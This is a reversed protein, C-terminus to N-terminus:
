RGAPPSAVTQEPLVRDLVQRVKATLDEPTFPKELFTVSSALVGRRIVDDETYGSVYLVGLAPRLARLRRAVEVGSMEPMVVDTVVLHIPGTHTEALALAERASGATLVQYGAIELVTRILERVGEEDEIVLITESGTLMAPASVHGVPEEAPQEVRPLHVTFTTGRGSESDVTIKGGSQTVIGYVTSLGLGTGEGHRKTTYFPEFIHRQTEPDIGSGTDSVSLVVYSGPSVGDDGDVEVERTEIMLDGGLPMADRANLCLNMIVQEIQTRDALVCGLDDGLRTVLRVDESIVRRLMGDMDAVVANLDVASQQLMQKRSYALLQRTLLTARGAAKELEVVNAHRQDEREYSGILLQAYGRITTLLNNFDHAIGGALRGIAEMKQAQRLQEERAALAEEARKSDTFDRAVFVWGQEPLQSRTVALWREEGSASRIRVVAPEDVVRVLPAGPAARREADTESVELADGLSRGLVEEDRRGTIREMAPNWSILLRHRDISFIGDSSSGVIDALKQREERARGHASLAFQLALMGALGFGLAWTRTEGALGAMLGLSINGMWVFARGSVDDLFSERFPGAGAVALVGSVGANNVALYVAAGALAGLVGRFSTASAGGVAHVVLLACAVAAVANAVNFAAKVRERRLLLNAAGFGTAFVVVMSLPSALLLMAVLVSEEHTVSEGHERGRVVRTEFLHHLVIVGAFAAILWPEDLSYDGTVLVAALVGAGALIWVGTVYARVRRPLAVRGAQGLPL